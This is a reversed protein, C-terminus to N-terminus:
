IGVLYRGCSSVDAQLIPWYSHSWHLVFMCGPGRSSIYNSVLFLVGNCGRTGCIIHVM